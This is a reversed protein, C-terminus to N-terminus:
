GERIPQNWENWCYAGDGAGHEAVHELYAAIWVTESENRFDLIM